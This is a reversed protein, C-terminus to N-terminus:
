WNTRFFNHFKYQQDERNIRLNQTLHFNRFNPWLYSMKFCANVIDEKNGFPVPLIQCFDGGLVMVKGGFPATNNLLNRFTKDVCQFILKNTM